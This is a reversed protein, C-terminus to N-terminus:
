WKGQEGREIPDDAGIGYVRNVFDSWSEETDVTTSRESQVVIEVFQNAFSDPMKVTLNGNADVRTTLKITQM